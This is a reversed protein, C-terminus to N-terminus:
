SATSRGHYFCPTQRVWVTQGEVTDTKTWVCDTCIPPYPEEGKMTRAVLPSAPITEPFEREIQTQIFKDLPISTERELQLLRVRRVEELCDARYKYVAGVLIALCAIAVLVWDM